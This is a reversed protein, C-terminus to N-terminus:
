MSLTIEGLDAARTKAARGAVLKLLGPSAFLKHMWSPGERFFASKQELYVNLGSFFIATGETQDAEDLTLPLYLQVMLVSHGQRRLAAVLANDRFCNGCFM